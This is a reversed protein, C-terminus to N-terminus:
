SRDTFASQSQSVRQSHLCLTTQDWAVRSFYLFCAFFCVAKYLEIKRNEKNHTDGSSCKHGEKIKLHLCSMQVTEELHGRTMYSWM